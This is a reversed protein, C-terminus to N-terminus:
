FEREYSIRAEAKFNGDNDRSVEGRFEFSSSNGKDDKETHSVHGEVTANGDSDAGASAGASNGCLMMLSENSYIRGLNKCFPEIAYLNQRRITSLLGVAQADIYVQATEIVHQHGIEEFLDPLFELFFAVDRSKENSADFFYTNIIAEEQFDLASGLDSCLFFPLGEKGTALFDKQMKEIIQNMKKARGPQARLCATYLHGLSNKKDKIVFDFFGDNILDDKNTFPTFEPNEIAYKSAIFLGSPLSLPDFSFGFSRPGIEVYFHTYRDKLQEYLSYIIQDDFVEQLCIVDANTSLISESLLELSVPTELLSQMNLNFVAFSGHSHITSSIGNLHFYPAANSQGKNAERLLCQILYRQYNSLSKDILEREAYSVLLGHLDSNQFVQGSLFTQLYQIERDISRMSFFNEQSLHKLYVLFASYKSTFQIWPKFTNEFTQLELPINMLEEALQCINRGEEQVYVLTTEGCGSYAESQEISTAEISKGFAILSILIIGIFVQQLRLSCRM